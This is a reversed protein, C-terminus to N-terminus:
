ANLRELVRALISAKGHARYDEILFNVGIRTLETESTHIGRNKYTYVIDTLARKEEWSARHTGAEKGPDKVAMRITEIMTDQDSPETTDPTTDHHRPIMPNHKTPQAVGPHPTIPSASTSPQDAEPAGEPQPSSFLRQDLGAVPLRTDETLRIGSFPSPSKPTM